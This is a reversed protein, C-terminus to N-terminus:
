NINVVPIVIININNKLRKKIRFIINEQRRKDPSEGLIITDIKHSEAFDSIRDVLEGSGFVQVTAGYEGAIMFLYDLAEADKEKKSIDINESIHILYLEDTESDKMHYASKILRECVKQGTVCVLIRKKAM